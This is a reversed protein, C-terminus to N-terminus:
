WTNPYALSPKKFTFGSHSSKGWNYIAVNFWPLNSYCKNSGQGCLRDSFLLAGKVSLFKSSGFKSSGTHSDQQLFTSKYALYLGLGWSVSAPPDHTQPWGPTCLMVRNWFLLNPPHPPILPLLKVFFYMLPIPVKFYLPIPAPPTAWTTSWQRALALGQPWVGTHYM